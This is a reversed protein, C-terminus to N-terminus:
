LVTASVRKKFKEEVAEFAPINISGRLGIIIENADSSRLFVVEKTRAVHTNEARVSRAGGKEERWQIPFIRLLSEIFLGDMNRRWRGYVLTLFTSFPFSTSNSFSAIRNRSFHNTIIEHVFMGRAVGGRISRETYTHKQIFSSLPPSLARYEWWSVRPKNHENIPWSLINRHRAIVHIMVIAFNTKAM